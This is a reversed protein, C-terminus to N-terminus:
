PLEGVGTDPWAMYEGARLREGEIELSADVRRIEIRAGEPLVRELTAPALRATTAAPDNVRALFLGGDTGQLGVKTSGFTM